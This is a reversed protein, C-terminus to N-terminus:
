FVQVASAKITIYVNLGIRLGLNASSKRTILVAIKQGVDVGVKVTMDQEQLETIQGKLVNRGSSKIRSTSLIIENSPLYVRVKGEKRTVAELRSNGGIDILAIGGEIKSNGEFSNEIGALGSTLIDTTESAPICFRIDDGSTPDIASFIRVDIGYTARLNEETIVEEPNGVAIFTGDNMIAVRSSFSFTHNPFHSTMIISLGEEALKRIMRLILTQNKFDLHSTPEDLLLTKPQQALIRAMLVLQREGGSIETYRKDKLHSVGIKEIVEEAILVDKQSPSSFANLYPARGMLVMQLVTFPFTSSHEQPIYGLLTAIEDRKIYITSRGDLLIEGRKLKQIGALCKLLTTKGCGNPGLICFVDDDTVSFSLREFINRTNYAFTAERVDLKM